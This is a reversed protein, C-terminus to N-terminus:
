VFLAVQPSITKPVYSLSEPQIQVTGRDEVLDFPIVIGNPDTVRSRTSLDGAWELKPVHIEDGNQIADFPPICKRMPGHEDRTIPSSLDFIQGNRKVEIGKEFKRTSEAS